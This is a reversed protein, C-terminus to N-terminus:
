LDGPHPARGDSDFTLRRLKSLIALMAPNEDLRPRHLISDSPLSPLHNQLDVQQLPPLRFALSLHDRYSSRAPHPVPKM